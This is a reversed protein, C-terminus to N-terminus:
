KEGKLRYRRRDRAPLDSLLTVYLFRVLTQGQSRSTAWDERAPIIQEAAGEVECIGTTSALTKSSKM